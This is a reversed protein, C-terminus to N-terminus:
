FGWRGLKEGYNQWEWWHRLRDTLVCYRKFSLNGSKALRKLRKWRVIIIKRHEEIDM